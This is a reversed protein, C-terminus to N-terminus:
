SVCSIKSGEVVVKPNSNNVSETALANINLDHWITGNKTSNLESNFVNVDGASHVTVVCRHYASVSLTSNTINVKKGLSVLCCARRASDSDSILLM